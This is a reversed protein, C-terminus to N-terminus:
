SGGFDIGYKDLLHKRIMDNPCFHEQKLQTIEDLYRDINRRPRGVSKKTPGGDLPLYTTSIDGEVGDKVDKMDADEMVVDEVGNEETGKEGNRKKEEKWLYLV